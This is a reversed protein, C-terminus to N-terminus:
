ERYVLENNNMRQMYQQIISKLQTEMEKRVEQPMSDKVDDKMLVDTRFRYAHIVKEGDFQILYDGKLFQYIGSAHIYNVAFKESAPTHLADQGFGVYPRDYGLIGLVTPMIDILDVIKETDLGKLDPMGPAYFIVPVKYYGLDTVYDPYYNGSTHDATIVFLTNKFWPQKEAKEFFRGIAYDSYGILESFPDEGVPFKGKYREPLVFPGHSSATFVSTVFPEKMESMRDCYFQLFEEDWIAWNGDFDDDNGYEERGFYDPYGVARAYAQFGMSGDRAGHFFATYYGKKKLEGGVSSLKNLSAPTLFFPEVFRPIGSLISPLGDISQQGNAFSYKYVLSESVLSDLFPTYGKYTGNDLHPNFSGVFEKSFSEVILVVVNMPRFQVSDAPLHLPTYVKEAEADTLYQPIVFATKGLTRFLSFPTNLVLCADVPRDAYQNANSITIPRTAATMGGRMGFVVFPIAAVLTLTQVTYYGWKNGSLQPRPARYMRYLFYCLAAAFLVLYWNAVFEKLIISTLNGGAEHSFEQFVSTTTRRGSFRFYVCDVLNSLLFFTNVIVFIWRIVRYFGEREKWHFPFLFLLIFLANSYLIATTDFITGAGFLRCM